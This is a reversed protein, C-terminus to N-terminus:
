GLGIHWSYLGLSSQFQDAPINKWPAKLAILIRPLIKQQIISLPLEDAAMWDAGFALDRANNLGRADLINKLEKNTVFIPASEYPQITQWVDIKILGTVDGRISFEALVSDLVIRWDEESHLYPGWWDQVLGSFLSGIVCSIYEGRIKKQRMFEALQVVDGTVKSPENFINQYQDLEPYTCSVQVRRGAKLALVFQLSLSAFEQPSGSFSDDLNLPLSAKLTVADYERAEVLEDRDDPCEIAKRAAEEAVRKWERLKSVSYRNPDNDILKSCTQCLWIGNDFSRRESSSLNPDYRPGGSSAATIHSAVGVNIVKTPEDRPGSTSLRCGPNSCRMGVRKALVDVIAGPFDDRM